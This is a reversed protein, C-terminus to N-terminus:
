KAYSELFGCAKCRMTVVPSGPETNVGGSEAKPTGQVWSSIYRGSYGRDVLFGNEFQGNCKPCNSDIIRRQVASYREIESKADKETTDTLDLVLYTGFGLAAISIAVLTGSGLKSEPFKM